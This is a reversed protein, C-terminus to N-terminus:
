PVASITAGQLPQPMRCALHPLHVPAQVVVEVNPGLIRKHGAVWAQGIIAHVGVCAMLEIDEDSRMAPRCVKRSQPPALQTSADQKSPCSGLRGLHAAGDM